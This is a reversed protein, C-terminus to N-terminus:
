SMNLLPCGVAVSVTVKSARQEAVSFKLLHRLKLAGTVSRIVKTCGEGERWSPGWDEEETRHLERHQRLLDGTWEVYCISCM